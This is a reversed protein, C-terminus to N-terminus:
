GNFIEKKVKIKCETNRCQYYKNYEKMKYNCKPCIMAEEIFIAVVEPLQIIVDCAQCQCEHVSIQDVKRSWCKPCNNPIGRGTYSIYERNYKFNSRVM